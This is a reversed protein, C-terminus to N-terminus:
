YRTTRRVERINKMKSCKSSIECDSQSIKRQQYSDLDRQELWHTSRHGKWSASQFFGMKKSTSIATFFCKSHPKAYEHDSSKDVVIRTMVTTLIDHLHLPTLGFCIKVVVIVRITTSLLVFWALGCQNRLQFVQSAVSNGFPMRNWKMKWCKCSHQLQSYPVPSMWHFMGSLPSSTLWLLCKPMALKQLCIILLQYEISLPSSHM